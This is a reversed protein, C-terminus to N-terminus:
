LYLFGVGLFGVGGRRIEGWVGFRLKEMYYGRVQSNGMERVLDFLRRLLISAFEKFEKKKKKIM